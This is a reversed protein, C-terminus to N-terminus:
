EHAKDRDWGAVATGEPECGSVGVIRATMMYNGIIAIMEFVLADSFLARIEALTKDTPTVDRVVETTFQAIAREEHDLAAFDGSELAQLTAESMGLNRAISVHHYLEYPCRSLYAVRLILVERQLPKMSPLMVTGAAFDRQREWLGDPTHMSMHVVNLLRPGLESAYARKADSLESLEPLPIRSM